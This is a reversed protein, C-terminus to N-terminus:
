YVESILEIVELNIPGDNAVSFKTTSPETSMKQYAM